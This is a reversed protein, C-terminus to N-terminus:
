VLRVLLSSILLSCQASVLRLTSVSNDLERLADGFITNSTSSNKFSTAYAMPAHMHPSAYYLFFPKVTEDQTESFQSIYDVAAADLESAILSLNAPQQVIEGDNFLPVGPNAASAGSCMGADYWMKPCGLRFSAAACFNDYWDVGNEGDACGMDWSYPIGIWHEFGRQQPFYDNHHGLHWKGLAMTSYGSDLLLQPLLIENLSLGYLSKQGFNATMGTRLGQRGTLLAARSCSCVSSGAHMDTFGIGNKALSDLNPTESFEQSNAGLDGYGMDDALFLVINPQKGQVNFFQLCLCCFSLIMNQRKTSSKQPSSATLLM